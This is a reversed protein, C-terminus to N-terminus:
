SVKDKCRYAKDKTSKWGRTAIMGAEVMQDLMKKMQVGASPQRTEKMVSMMSELIPVWDEAEEAQKKTQTQKKTQKKSAAHASQGPTLLDLLRAHNRPSRRPFSPVPSGIRERRDPLPSRSRERSQERSQERSEARQETLVPLVPSSPPTIKPSETPKRRSMMFPPLRPKKKGGQSQSLDQSSEDTFDDPSPFEQDQDFKDEERYMEALQDEKSLTKDLEEEYSGFYM